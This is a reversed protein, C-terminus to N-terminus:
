GSLGQKKTENLKSSDGPMAKLHTDFSGCSCYSAESQSPRHLLCTSFSGLVFNLPCLTGSSERAGADRAEMAVTM